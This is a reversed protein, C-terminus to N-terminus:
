CNMCRIQVGSVHYVAGQGTALRLMPGKQGAVIAIQHALPNCIFNGSGDPKPTGRLNLSVYGRPHSSSRGTVWCGLEHNNPGSCPWLVYLTRLRAMMWTPDVECIDEVTASAEEAQLAIGELTDAVAERVAEVSASTFPRDPTRPAPHLLQPATQAEAIQRHLSGVQTSLDSIHQAQDNMSGRVEAWFERLEEKDKNSELGNLIRKLATTYQKATKGPPPAQASM